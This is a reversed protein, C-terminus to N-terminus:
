TDEHLAAKKDYKECGSILSRRLYTSLERQFKIQEEMEAIEQETAFRWLKDNM